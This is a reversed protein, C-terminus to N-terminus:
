KVGFRVRYSWFWPVARTGLVRRLTSRLETIGIEDESLGHKLLTEIGGQSLAIGVLREADGEEVHHFVAESVYSFRGSRRMRELHGDKSWQRVESSLHRTREIEAARALCENYAQEARPNLTPPWDCDYAAFVGGDRLIRAAEAFTGEPEMWHLAQSCTVIDAFGAPLGTRTSLGDVFRAISINADSARREAQARMEANPEVGIVERACRTWILTSLGTGSGIDVVTPHPQGAVQVLMEVLAAPPRPRFKDYSEAFGSFREVNASIHSEDEM